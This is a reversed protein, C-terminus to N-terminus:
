DGVKTRLGTAASSYCADIVRLADLGDQASAPPRTGNEFAKLSRELVLRTSVVRPNAPNRALLKRKNGQEIWALGSVGYDVRIHPRTSRYLGTTMRARGGFSARYSAETTDARVEFYHTEGKCLRNQILQAMRGGAFELSVVSLADSGGDGQGGSSMSAWVAKPMEGFLALIYDILHVGAEHLTRRQMAGRWGGETWPPVDTNQWLQAFFVPAGSGTSDLLARFIPMERFEHNLAISKGAANAADIVVQGEAAIPVFPKECIVHCGAAIADLCISTHLHPPTAVIVVEPSSGGLLTDVSSFVPVGFKTAARELRAPDADCAGVTSVNKMQALAPLHMEYGAEGCGIVAIRRLKM